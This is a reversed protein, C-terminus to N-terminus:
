TVSNYTVQLSVTYVHGIALAPFVNAISAIFTGNFAYMLTNSLIVSAGGGSAQVWVTGVVGGTKDVPYPLDTIWLDAPAGTTANATLTAKADLTVQRGIKTLRNVQSSATFPTAGGQRWILNFSGENLERYDDLVRPDDHYPKTITSEPFHIPGGFVGIEPYVGGLQNASSSVGSRFYRGRTGLNGSTLSPVLATPDNGQIPDIITFGWAEAKIDFFNAQDGGSLWPEELLVTTGCLVQVGKQVGAGAITPSAFRISDGGAGGARTQADVTIQFGANAASVWTIPTNLATWFMKNNAISYTTAGSTYGEYNNEAWFNNFDFNRVTSNNMRLIYLGGMKNSESKVSTIDCSAGDRIVMGFGNGVRSVCNEMRFATNSITTPTLFPYLYPMAEEETVAFNCKDSGLFSVNKFQNANAADVICCAYEFGQICSDEHITAGAGILVGFESTGKVQLNKFGSGQSAGFTVDPSTHSFFLVFKAGAANNLQVVNDNLDYSFASSIGELMIRPRNIIWDKIAYKKTCLISGGGNAHLYEKAAEFASTDDVVGGGVAGFREPTVTRRSFVNIPIQLEARLGKDAQGVVRWEAKASGSVVKTCEYTTQGVNFTEGLTPSNPFNPLTM